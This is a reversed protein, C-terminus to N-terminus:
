SEAPVPLNRRLFDLVLGQYARGGVAVVDSHRAGPILALECAAPCRAALRRADDPPAHPDDAGTLILLPAPLLHAVHDAPTIQALRAGLRRETVWIVGRKFRRFWTPYKSGLRNNFAADLDHYLSELVVAAFPAVRRAAFCLAAAGMSVGLAACPQDPWRRGILDRVAVVDRAEYYGFSTFRGQSEGHARHDFLVCRYGARALFDCRALTQDRNSRLGHFLAVTAVPRPPSVVWGALRLGDATRCSLHEVSLGPLEPSSQPRGRSRRTLWRSVTYATALYGVGTAATLGALWEKLWAIRRPRQSM